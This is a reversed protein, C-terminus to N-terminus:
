LWKRVEDYDSYKYYKKGIIQYEEHGKGVILLTDEKNLKEIGKKIAEKRNIIIEVKENKESIIDKIIELENEERPNDDTLIIKDAYTLAYDGYEKRKSKDRNGGAGFVVILRGNTLSKIEKLVNLFALSTHAYDIVINPNNHIVDMRGRVRKCKELKKIDIKVKM